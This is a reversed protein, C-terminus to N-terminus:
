VPSFVAENDHTELCYIDVLISPCQTDMEAQEFSMGIADFAKFYV